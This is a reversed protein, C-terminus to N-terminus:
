DTEFFGNDDKNKDENNKDDDPESMNDNDSEFKDEDGLITNDNNTSSHQKKYINSLKKRLLDLKLSKLYLNNEDIDFDLPERVCVRILHQNKSTVAFVYLKKYEMINRMNIEDTSSWFVGFDVHSHWHGIINQCKNGHKKFLEVQAEPSIVVGGSSVQQSPILIDYLFIEKNVIKGLLYGAIEFDFEENLTELTVKLSPSINIRM